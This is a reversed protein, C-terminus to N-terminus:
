LSEFRFYEPKWRLKTMGTKGDRSKALNVEAISPEESHENYYDDRYILMVKDADQEIDGSEKLDSLEPRKDTRQEPKRSLQHIMLVPVELQQAMMKTDRSLNSIQERKSRGEDDKLLNLNDIVMLDLGHQYKITMAQSRINVISRSYNDDIYLPKDSLEDVATALKYVDGQTLKGRKIKEHQITSQNSLIRRYLSRKSSELSFLAIKKDQFINYLIMNLALTTKGMSPRAALVIFEGEELGGTLIDLGYFGTPLGVVNEDRKIAAEVEDMVERGLDGMNVTKNFNTDNINIIEKEIEELLEKPDADQQYKHIESKTYNALDALKRLVFKDHLIKCHQEVASGGIVLEAIDSIYSTGGANELAGRKKLSDIVTIIDVENNNKFLSVITNFILRHKNDYFHEETLKDVVVGIAWEDQMTASLVAGEANIDAPKQKM